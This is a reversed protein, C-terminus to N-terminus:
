KFPIYTTFSFYNKVKVKIKSRKRKKFFSIYKFFNTLHGYKLRGAKLTSLLNRIYSKNNYHKFNKKDSHRLRFLMLDLLGSISLRKYRSRRRKGLCKGLYITYPDKIIIEMTGFIPWYRYVEVNTQINSQYNKECFDNFYMIFNAQVINHQAISPGIHPSYLSDSASVVTRFKSRIKFPEIIVKKIRKM